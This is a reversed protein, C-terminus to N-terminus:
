GNPRLHPLVSNVAYQPYSHYISKLLSHFTNEDCWQRLISLYNATTPHAKASVNAAVARGAPTVQYRCWTEGDVPVEAILGNGSLERISDYVTPACPGYSMPRFTFVAYREPLKGARNEQAFVFLGKMIRIPDVPADKSAIFVLLQQDPTMVNGM